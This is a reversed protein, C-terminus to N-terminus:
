KVMFLVGLTNPGSHSTITSGAITEIVEGFHQHMAIRVRVADVVARSCGTHTIFVRETRLDDRGALQADVYQELVKPLTGRYKHGVRMEGNDVVIEPRIKLLNAGLLMVSSCRGGKNMYALNDLIFSARVKPALADLAEKIAPAEMGQQAMRAAELVLHGGGTSLNHTDVVWVGGVEEAAIRANQCTSSMDSSITLCVIDYGEGRWKEFIEKFDGVSCAITGPLVNTEAVYDFINQPTVDPGDRLVKGGLNIYLGIVDVGYKRYLEPTLDTTSDSIIKVKPM